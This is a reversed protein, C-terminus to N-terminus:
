CRDAVLDTSNQQDTACWPSEGSGCSSLVAVSSQRARFISCCRPASKSAAPALVAGRHHCSAGGVAPQLQLGVDKVKYLHLPNHRVDKVNM